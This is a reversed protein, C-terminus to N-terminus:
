HNCPTILNPFCVKYEKEKIRLLVADEGAYTFATRGYAFLDRKWDRGCPVLEWWIYLLEELADLEKMNGQWHTLVQADPDNSKVTIIDNAM